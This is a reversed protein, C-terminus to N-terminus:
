DLLASQTRFLNRSFVRSATLSHGPLPLPNQIHRKELGIWFKIAKSIRNRRPIFDIDLIGREPNLHPQLLIFGSSRFLM